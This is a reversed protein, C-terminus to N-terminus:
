VRITVTLIKILLEDPESLLSPKGVELANDAEWSVDLLEAINALNYVFQESKDVLWKYNDLSNNHRFEVQFTESDPQFIERIFEYERGLSFVLASPYRAENADEVVTSITRFDGMSTLAKIIKDYPRM